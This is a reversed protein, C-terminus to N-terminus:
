QIILQNGQETVKLRTTKELIEIAKELNDIQIGTNFSRQYDAENVAKITVGYIEEMKLLIEKLQSDNLMIYGTKWSTHLEATTSQIKPLEKKKNSYAVFDGPEMMLEQKLDKLSLKIKGEELFVKTAEQHSNINFHTGLVEVVM